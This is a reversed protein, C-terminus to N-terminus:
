VVTDTRLSSPCSNAGPITTGTLTSTKAPSKLSNKIDIFYPRIAHRINSNTASPSKPAVEVEVKAEVASVPVPLVGVPLVSSVDGVPLVSCVGSIGFLEDNDTVPLVSVDVSSVSQDSIVEVVPVDVSRVEGADGADPLVPSVTLGSIPPVDDAKM